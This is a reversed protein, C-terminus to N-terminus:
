LGARDDPPVARVRETGPQRDRLSAVVAGLISLGAAVRMATTIGVFFADEMNSAVLTNFIAGAMGVGLAMGASRASALMGAAIGQRGAPASGMLASNNPSIFIGIGLGNVVLGTITVWLPTSAGSLSIVALGVAMIIMGTVTLRRTGIKDSLSGSIPVVLAMILPQSILVLGSQSPTLGRGDILYFPLLFMVSYMCIYNIVASGVSANFTASRFLSLDLMPAEVRKEFAIFAWLLGISFVLTGITLASTWGWDHARNLSFLLMSFGAMYMLAGVLDFREKEGKQHDNPIAFIGVAVALIAVPVNIFFISRWGFADTLWGGLSPGTTLGLYTMTAQLGLALGRRQAPFSATLIAPGNAYLMAGGLAQIARFFILWGTSPAFSCGVSAGLFIVFGSLYNVKHGHLDGLRGFTLLLGSVVLLYTTAIWEVTAVDTKFDRTIVPIISNVVSSDLATMYTGLGVALLVFWKRSSKEM